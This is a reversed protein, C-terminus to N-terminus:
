YKHFGDLVSNKKKLSTDALVDYIVSRSVNLFHLSDQFQLNDIKLFLKPNVEKVLNGTMVSKMMFMRDDKNLGSGFEVTM